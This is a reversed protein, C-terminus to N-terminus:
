LPDEGFRNPGVTGKTCMWVLLLIQGVIPVAGILWWEGSRDVDHLRRIIVAIMPLFTVLGWICSFVRTGSAVDIFAAGMGVVLVFLYLYWLESRSARGTASGYRSFCSKVASWFNMALEEILNSTRRACYAIDAIM